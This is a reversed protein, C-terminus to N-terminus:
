KGLDDKAMETKKEVKAVDAPIEDLRVYEVAPCAAIQM